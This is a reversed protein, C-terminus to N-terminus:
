IYQKIFEISYNRANESDKDNYGHGADKMVILSANDYEKVAKESYSIPVVDDKDGHIIKVPGKYGKIVNFIDIDKAVRDFEPSIPLGFCTTDNAAFRKKSDDPIVFAPYWLVLAKIKEPMKAAVYASVFGGMSEGQLFLKDKDVYDFESVKSIVFELDDVETLVTMDTMKGDSQPNVSGGIFDFFICAIDNDAFGEGHHLFWIFSSNFGHSFIVTPFKGEKEPIFARGVIKLGNEKTFLLEKVIM